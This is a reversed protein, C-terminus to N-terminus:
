HDFVVKDELKHQTFLDKLSYWFSCVEILPVPSFRLFVMYCQGSVPARGSFKWSFRTRSSM